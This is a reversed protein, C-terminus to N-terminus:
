KRFIKQWWHVKTKLKKTLDGMARNQVVGLSRLEDEFDQFTEMNVLGPKKLFGDYKEVFKSLTINLKEQHEEQGEKLTSTFVAIVDKEKDVKFNLKLDNFFVSRIEDQGFSEQAFSYLAAIFGSQLAHDPHLKCTEGGYCKSYFPFGNKSIIFIDDIM